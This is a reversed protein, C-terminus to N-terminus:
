GGSMPLSRSLCQLKLYVGLWPNWVKETSTKLEEVSAQLTSSAQHYEELLHYAAFSSAISFGLLFGLIRDDNMLGFILMLITLCAYGGRFGGIPKKQPQVTGTISSSDNRLVSSLSFSRTGLHRNLFVRALRSRACSM